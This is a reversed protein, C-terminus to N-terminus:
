NRRSGYYCSVTGDANTAMGGGERECLDECAKARGRACTARMQPVVLQGPESSAGNVLQYGVNARESLSYEAAFGPLNM